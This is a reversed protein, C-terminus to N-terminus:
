IRHPKIVIEQALKNLLMWGGSYRGVTVSVDLGCGDVGRWPVAADLLPEGVEAADLGPTAGGAPEPPAAGQHTIPSQHLQQAHAVEPQQPRAKNKSAM